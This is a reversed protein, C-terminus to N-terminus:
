GKPAPAAATFTKKADNIKLQTPAGTAEMVHDTTKPHRKPTGAVHAKAQWILRKIFLASAFGPCDQFRTPIDSASSSVIMRFVPTHKALAPM